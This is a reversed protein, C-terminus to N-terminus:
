FAGELFPSPTTTKAPVFQTLDLTKSNPINLDLHTSLIAIGGAECHDHISKAILNTNETDLSTTPEDMIWIKRRSLTLRALGLRRKQGASLNAAPRTSLQALGFHDLTKTINDKGYVGAWFQLNEAVTLQLKVADLHGSFAVNELAIHYTGSAPQSLGALLRLLTSKGVGNPGRLILCENSAVDFCVNQLVLRAGRMCSINTATIKM